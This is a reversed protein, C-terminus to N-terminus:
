RSVRERPEIAITLTALGERLAHEAREPTDAEAFLFGLYRGGEPLAEVTRGTAIAIELGVINDVARCADQGAVGLLTGSHPIPLMMVGSARNGPRRDFTVEGLAHRLVIEELSTGTAFRLASSCRGGITRAAVEIVAIRGNPALRVEGHVPGERLGLGEAARAVEGAAADLMSPDLRSPTVYITEEFFPGDLPDPKDFIALTHFTGDVLLGEIAIEAGGVFEEVLLTRSEGPLTDLLRGIRDFAHRLAREDDARIVGRSGSLGVPKIVVPYGLADAAEVADDPTPPTHAGVVAFGPQAVGATSFRRRMASKDRTSRVADPPNHVLGLREAAVAATLSGQDDVAVVADLPTARASDVIRDAAGEPDSLDLEIFRDAMISSLAQPRDSATVVEVDVRRAAALFESARYTASPLILVVRAV